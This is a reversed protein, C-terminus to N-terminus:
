PQNGEMPDATPDTTPADEPAAYGNDAANDAADDAAGASSADVPADADSHATGAVEAAPMDAVEVVQLTVLDVVVAFTPLPAKVTGFFLRVCRHAACPGDEARTILGNATATAADLGAAELKEIVAADQRAVMAAEDIEERVLPLGAGLPAELASVDGSALDVKAYVAEGTDYRYIGVEAARATAGKENLRQTYLVRYSPREALAAVRDEASAADLDTDSTGAQVASRDVAAAVVDQVVTSAVALDSARAVEDDTLMNAPGPPANESAERAAMEDSTMAMGASRDAADADETGAGQTETMARKTDGRGPGPAEAGDGADGAQETAASGGDDGEDTPLADCGALVALLALPLVVHGIRWRAM